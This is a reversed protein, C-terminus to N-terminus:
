KRSIETLDKWVQVYDFISLNGIVAVIDKESPSYALMTMSGIFEGLSAWVEEGNVELRFVGLGYGTLQPTGSDSADFFTTMAELSAPALLKGSFLGDYFKVLDEATSVMAGSSYAATAASVGDPDLEFLGPLPILDRDFSSILNEPAPEYPVFYNSFLELPELIRLRYLAAMEQGTIQEAILGLLIYNTNSYSYEAGPQNHLKQQSAIGVMEEPKWAKHPFFLSGLVVPSQLIEYIGSRHTLLHRLTIEGANPFDPFWRALPDDLKLKGEDVLQLIIVATFTKTASGVRLIAERQLPIRREPDVTGGVGFWTQGGATRIAAQFGPVGLLNIEADLMTQLRNATERDLTVLASLDRDSPPHYPRVKRLFVPAAWLALVVLISLPLLIKWNLLLRAIKDM